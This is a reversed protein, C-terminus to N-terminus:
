SVSSLECMHCQRQVLQSPHLYLKPQQEDFIYDLLVPIQLWLPMLVTSVFLFRHKHYCLNYTDSWNMIGVSYSVHTLSNQPISFPHFPSSLFPLQFHDLTSLHLALYFYPLTFTEISLYLWFLAELFIPSFKIHFMIQLILTFSLPLLAM